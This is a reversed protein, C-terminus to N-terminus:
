PEVAHYKKRLNAFLNKESIKCVTLFDFNGFNLYESQKQLVNKDELNPFFPVSHVIKKQKNELILKENSKSQFLLISTTM